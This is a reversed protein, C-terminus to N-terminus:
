PNDVRYWFCQKSNTRADLMWTYNCHSDYSYRGVDITYPGFSVNQLSEFRGNYLLSFHLHPGTSSGGQCLAINRQNAYTGIKQNKSVWDGDQVQIGDMHYYNTAWGNPATVRLQCRSFVSVYGEHAATVSYTQEGWRPWDYSLDVSSLPYGSGTHSHPGNPIWNYGARWPWQMDPPSAFSAEEEAKPAGFRQSYLTQWNSWQQIDKLSSVIAFTAASDLAEPKQKAHYFLQSLRNAVHKIESRVHELESESLIDALSMDHSAALTVLIVRPDVGMAGSWHNLEEELVLWKSSNEFYDSISFPQKIPRYVFSQETMLTPINHKKLTSLNLNGTDIAPLISHSFGQTSFLLLLTGLQTKM